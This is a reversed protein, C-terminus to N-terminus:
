ARILAVPVKVVVKKVTHTEGPEALQAMHADEPFFVSAMGPLNRIHALGPGPRHFFVVDTEPDYPAKTELTHRPYWAISECHELSMQVDIYRDHAELLAGEPARVPYAMIRAFLGEHSLPIKDCLESEPTLTALFEFVEAWVPGSFHQRWNKLPCLVM